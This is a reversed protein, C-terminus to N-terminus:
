GVESSIELVKGVIAKSKLRSIREPDGVFIARAVCIAECAPRKGTRLRDICLDCKIMKGESDFHPAGYPCVWLCFRCGICRDHDVLVAGTQLDRYIASRPCAEICPADTCHMCSIPQFFHLIREGRVFPGHEHLSILSLGRPQGEPPLSPHPPLAHVLKCAIICAYCGICKDKDFFIMMKTM